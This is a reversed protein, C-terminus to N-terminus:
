HTSGQVNSERRPANIGGGAMGINGLLLQIICMARINQTGITHQTWGMAYLETGVKNPKGTSAYVQYVELLKEKPTGTISSVKDLNYRSYPKKLPQFLCHPTQLPPYKKPIGKKDM